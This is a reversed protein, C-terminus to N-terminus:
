WERFYRFIIAMSPFKEIVDNIKKIIRYGKKYSKENQPDWYPIKGKEV